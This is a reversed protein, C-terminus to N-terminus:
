KCYNQDFSKYVTTLPRRPQFTRCDNNNIRSCIQECDTQGIDVFCCHAEVIDYITQQQQSKSSHIGGRTCIHITVKMSSSPTLMYLVYLTTM